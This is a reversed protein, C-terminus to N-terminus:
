APYQFQHITRASLIEPCNKQTFGCTETSDEVRINEHATYSPFWTCVVGTLSDGFERKKM